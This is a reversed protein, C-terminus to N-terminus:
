IVKWRRARCYFVVQVPLAVKLTLFIRFSQQPRQAATFILGMYYLRLHVDTEKWISILPADARETIGIGQQM